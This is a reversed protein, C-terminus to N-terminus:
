VLIKRIQRVIEFVICLTLAGSVVAAILTLPVSQTLRLGVVGPFCTINVFAATINNIPDDGWGIIVFIGPM